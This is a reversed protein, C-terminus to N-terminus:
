RFDRDIRNDETFVIAAKYDPVKQKCFRKNIDRILGALNEPLIWTIAEVRYFPTKKSCIDRSKQYKVIKQKVIKEM